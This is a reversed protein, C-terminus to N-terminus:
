SWSFSSTMLFPASYIFYSFHSFRPAFLLYVLGVRAGMLIPFNRSQSSHKAFICRLVLHLHVRLQVCLRRPSRKSTHSQTDATLTRKRNSQMLEVLEMEMSHPPARARSMRMGRRWGKRRESEDREIPRIRGGRGSCRIGRESARENYSRWNGCESGM